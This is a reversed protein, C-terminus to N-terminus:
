RQHNANYNFWLIRETISVTVIFSIVAWTMSVTVLGIVLGWFVGLGIAIFRFDWALHKLEQIHTLHDHYNM